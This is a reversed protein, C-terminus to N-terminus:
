LESEWSFNSEDYDVEKPMISQVPKRPATQKATGNMAKMVDSYDRNMAGLVKSEALNRPHIPRITDDEENPDIDAFMAALTPNKKQLTQVLENANRPTQKRQETVVQKTTGNKQMEALISKKLAPVIKKLQENVMYKVLTQITQIDQDRM